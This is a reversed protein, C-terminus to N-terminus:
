QVSLRKSKMTTIKDDNLTMDRYNLVNIERQKDYFLNPPAVIALLEEDTMEIPPTKPVETNVMSYSRPYKNGYNLHGEKENPRL